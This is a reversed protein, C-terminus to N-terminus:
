KNNIKCHNIMNTELDKNHDRKILIMLLIILKGIYIKIIQCNKKQNLKIM